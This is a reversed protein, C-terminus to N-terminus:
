RSQNNNAGPSNDAMHLNGSTIIQAGNSVIVQNGSGPEGLQLATAQIVSGTGSVLVLNNSAGASEGDGLQALLEVQGGNLVMLQNGSTTGGVELGLGTIADLGNSWVTQPGSVTVATGNELKFIGGQTGGGVTTVLNSGGLMNWTGGSITFNANSAVVLSSALFANSTTLTGNAFNFFSNTAAASNNAVLLQNVYLSGNNTLTLIGGGNQGVIVQGGTATGNTVVLASALTFVGFGGSNEGLILGSLDNTAGYTINSISGGNLTLTGAGSYGIVLPANSLVLSGGNNITVVGLGNSGIVLANNTEYVTGLNNITLSGGGTAAGGLTIQNALVTGNTVTLAAYGGQGLILNGNNAANTVILSSGTVNILNGTDGNSASVTLGTAVVTSGGSINLVNSVAGGTGITLQNTVSFSSGGAVTFINSSGGNGIVTNGSIALQGGNSLLVSGQNGDVTFATVGTLMAGSGSVTVYNGSGGNGVTLSNGGMNWLSGNGIITVGNSNAGATGGIVGIGGSWLQAGNSIILSSTVGTNNGNAGGIYVTTNVFVQAGATLVASNSGSSSTSQAGGISLAGVNTILGGSVTLVNGGSNQFGVDLAQNGNNWTSNGLLTVINNSSYSGIVSAATTAVLVGNSVIVTNNNGGGGGGGVAGVFIGNSGAASMFFGGNTAILSNFNAGAANGVYLGSVNTLSGGGTVIVQNSVGGLQVYSRIGGETNGALNVTAGNITMVNGTSAGSGIYLEQFISGGSAIWTVNSLLTLTNASSNYGVYTAATLNLVGNSLVVTNNNGGSNGNNAGVSIGGSSM